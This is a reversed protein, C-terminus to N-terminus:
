LRGWVEMKRRRRGWTVEAKKEDYCFTLLHWFFNLQMKFETWTCVIVFLWHQVFMAYEQEWIVLRISQAALGPLSEQWPSEPPLHQRVWVYISALTIRTILTAWSFCLNKGLRNWPYTNWPEPALCKWHYTNRPEPMSCIRALAIGFAVAVPSM